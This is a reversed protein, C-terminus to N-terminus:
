FTGTLGLSNPGLNLSWSIKKAPPLTSRRKQTLYHDVYEVVAVGLVVSVAVDTLWHEGEWLRSAPGIMGLSYIGAKVFPNKFQKGVAYATSFAFLAHGSPFSRYHDDKFSFPRFEHNGEGKLPRARGVLVKTFTLLLGSATASTVLLLGTHRLKENKLLLGSLYVAGDLAFLTEPSGFSGIDSLIEPVDDKRNRFYDSTEEDVSYLIGTGLAASGALLLDKKQWSLPSLYVAKVGGLATKSDQKLNEFFSPQLISLSDQQQANVPQMVLFFLLLFSLKWIPRYNM